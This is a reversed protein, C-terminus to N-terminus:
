GAVSGRRAFPGRAPYPAHAEASPATASHDFASAQFTLIRCFRISPEFGEREAMRGHKPHQLPATGDRAASSPRPGRILRKNGHRVAQGHDCPTDARLVCARGAGRRGGPLGSRDRPPPRPGRRPDRRPHSHPLPEGQDGRSGAAWRWRTWRSAYRMGCGACCRAPKIVGGLNITLAHDWAHFEPDDAAGFTSSGRLATYHM